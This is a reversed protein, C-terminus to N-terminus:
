EKQVTLDVPKYGGKTRFYFILILFCVLMITPFVAVTLLANKKASEVVRGVEEKQSEDLRALKSQDVPQYSGFVSLREEAVVQAHLAPNQAILEHHIQRDQINGLFVAGIVGVSLMGMGGIANLTLAGGKPFREAAVGLMTPWFFSKGMAYITAAVFIMIGAAKSLFILGLVAIGSCVALLGLPQLKHIIPGALFRLVMMIFATYILLWGPQLDMKGMVPTVLETIWSDTGLETTALPLMILLLFIFIPHGLKRVYLAYAVILAAAVVIEILLTWQFIRGIEAIMIAIVIVAGIIGAEQLMAKYSIGAKVREHVPFKARIMMLGYAVAPILVLGVKWQWSLSPMLILILLGGLVMGGPWGAHLINLWKTKEKSYVTAVVPNIVAEVAGNGLALVFTGWYLMQYGTAFITIVASLVHCCFAFTLTRGYGIKDIVLSFLIISLAFPWLGVGLIEGKQTESLNFHLGLDGIIQTRIIFGFSTAVLAVFCTWFLWKSVVGGAGQNKVAAEAM